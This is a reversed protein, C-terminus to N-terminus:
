RGVDESVFRVQSYGLTETNSNSPAGQMVRLDSTLFKTGSRVNTLEEIDNITVAQKTVKLKTSFVGGREFEKFVLASIAAISSAAVAGIPGAKGLGSLATGPLNDLGGALDSLSSLKDDFKKQKDAFEKQKKTSEALGKQLKKFENTRTFAQASTKDKFTGKLKSSQQRRPLNRRSEGEEAGPAFIGGRRRLDNEERKIQKARQVKQRANDLETNSFTKIRFSEEVVM